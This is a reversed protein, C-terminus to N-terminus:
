LVIYFKRTLTYIINILIERSGLYSMSGIGM